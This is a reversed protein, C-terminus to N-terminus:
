IFVSSHIVALLKDPFVEIDQLSCIKKVAEYVSIKDVWVECNKCCYLLVNGGLLTLLVSSRLILVFNNSVHLEYCSPWFLYFCLFIVAYVDGLTM